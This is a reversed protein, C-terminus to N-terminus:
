EDTIGEVPQELPIGQNNFYKGNAKKDDNEFLKIHYTSPDDNYFMPIFPSQILATKEDIEQTKMVDKIVQNALWDRYYCIEYTAPSLHWDKKKRGTGSNVDYGTGYVNIAQPYNYKYARLEIALHAIGAAINAKWDYRPDNNQANDNYDSYNVQKFVAGNDEAFKFYEHLKELKGEYYVGGPAYGEWTSALFQMYGQAGGVPHRLNGDGKSLGANFLSNSEHAIISLVFLYDIYEENTNFYNCMKGVYRLTDVNLNLTNQKGGNGFDM